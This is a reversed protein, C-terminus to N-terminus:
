RGRGFQGRRSGYINTGDLSYMLFMSRVLSGGLHGRKSYGDDGRQVAIGSLATRDARKWYWSSKKKTTILPRIV